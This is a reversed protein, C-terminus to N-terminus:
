KLIKKGNIINVGKQAKNIRQGALNYITENLNADVNLNDIATADDEFLGYFAKAKTEIELYAKGAPITVTSAVPYFGVGLDKNALAYIGSGGTVTGDSAKLLNDTMDATSTAAELGYTGAAEAKVVVAAGAPIAEVAEMIVATETKDVVKFATLESPFSVASPAVFTTYLLSGVTISILTTFSSMESWETTGEKLNGQVMWEYETNPTLGTFEYPTTVNEVVVWEGMPRTVTVDIGDNSGYIAPVFEYTKGAEFVYDNQRGGVNGNSAAIYIKDDPSPNLICWDYTGAPIQISVSNDFVVATTNMDCEADTPITYEFASYDTATWGGNETFVDGYATADADLLMQYGSGDGWVNGATLIITAPESPDVPLAQRYQLNYNDQSGTWKLTATTANIDTATLDIPADTESPTTFSTSVWRSEGEAYVAQVQVMYTTEPTLGTLEYSNTTIGSITTGNEIPKTIVIDDIDLLFMDTVNYHRIAVYGEGSYASLDFTYQTWEGTATKNAGVMTFDAPDANGTTSVAVGFVEAPYNSDQGKAWFSINGGLTVLPSVLYNDPNLATSAVNTYSGSTVMDQSDNHGGGTGPANSLYSTCASFLEWGYGDGDADITTWEGLSSDEFDQTEIGGPLGYILNYSDAEGVWTVTAKTAAPSVALETPAPFAAETTFSIVDSWRLIADDNNPSVMAQYTTEPTLGDLTFPNTDAVVYSIETDNEGIYAIVWSTAPTLSNETWSLKASHSDVETAAFDTPRRWSTLDIEYLVDGTEMDSTGTGSFLENGGADTFTWSTETPYNGAYWYFTFLSGCLKLTGTASAGDEITLQAVPNDDEDYVLIYNNNWGDGYSDVLSYNVITPNLCGDTTFSVPASWDSVETGKKARVRITYTTSLELNELVYGNEVDEIVEGDVELDFASASSTWSVTAETGGNYVVELNTPPLLAGAPFYTLTTKPIFNQVSGTVSSLSSANYGSWAAGEVEQGYFYISKYGSDTTNEIGVLLNADGSYTFPTSFTITMSGGEGESVIALTGQYVIDDDAKAELGTMTTYNVEKLYVDVTSATTYPINTSSTYFKLASITAGKGMDGLDTAPIVFQNRTFDDFYYIYAPVNRNTSTGEYVTLEDARAGTLGFLAVLLLMAVRTLKNTDKHKM